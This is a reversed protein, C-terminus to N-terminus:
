CVNATAGMPRRAAYSRPWDHLVKNCLNEIVQLNVDPLLRAISSSLIENRHSLSGALAEPAWRLWTTVDLDELSGLDPLEPGGGARPVAAFNMLVDKDLPFSRSSSECTAFIRLNSPWQQGEPLTEIIGSSLLFFPRAWLSVMSRDLGKLCVMSLRDPTEKAHMWVTRLGSLWADQYYLWTPEVEILNLDVDEGLSASYARVWDTSPVLLWSSAMVIAHLVEAHVATPERVPKPSLPFDAVLNGKDENTRALTQSTHDNSTEVVTALTTKPVRASRSSVSYTIDRTMSPAPFPLSVGGFRLPVENHDILICSFDDTQFWLNGRKFSGVPYRKVDQGEVVDWKAQQSTGRLTTPFAVKVPGLLTPGKAGGTCVFITAGDGVPHGDWRCWGDSIVGKAMVVRSGFLSVNVLTHRTFHIDLSVVAGISTITASKWVLFPYETFEVIRFGRCGDRKFDLLLGYM